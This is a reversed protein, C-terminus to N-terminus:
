DPSTQPNTQQRICFRGFYLWVSRMRIRGSSGKTYGGKYPPREGKQKEEIGM